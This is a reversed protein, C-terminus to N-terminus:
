QSGALGRTEDVLESLRSPAGDLEESPWPSVARDDQDVVTGHMSLIRFHGAEVGTLEPQGANEADVRLSRLFVLM